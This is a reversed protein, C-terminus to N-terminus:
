KPPQNSIESLLRRKVNIGKEMEEKTPYQYFYEIDNIVGFTVKYEIGNSLLMMENNSNRIFIEEM